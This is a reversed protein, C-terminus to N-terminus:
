LIRPSVEPMFGHEALFESLGPVLDVSSLDEIAYWEVQTADGGAVPTTSGLVNVVFDLIVFHYNTGMREVWGVLSSCVGELGTEEGLERVVAAVISEGSEVRGGPLAWLGKGPDTGRRVLLLRGDDM